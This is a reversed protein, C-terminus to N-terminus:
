SDAESSGDTCILSKACGLRHCIEGRHTAEDEVGPVYTLALM